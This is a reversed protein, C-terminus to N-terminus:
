NLLAASTNRMRGVLFSWWVADVSFLGIALRSVLFRFQRVLSAAWAFM